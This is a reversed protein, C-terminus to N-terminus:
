SVLDSIRIKQIKWSELSGDLLGHPHVFDNEGDAKGEVSRARM